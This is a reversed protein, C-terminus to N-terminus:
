TVTESTAYQGPTPFAQTHTHTICFTYPLFVPAV